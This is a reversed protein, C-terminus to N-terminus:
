NQKPTIEVGKVKLWLIVKRLWKANDSSPELSGIRKSIITALDLGNAGKGTFDAGRGLLFYVMEFNPRGAAVLLPTDGHDNKSNIDAGANLLLDVPKTGERIAYFIPRRGFDEKFVMNVNVKHEILAALFRHDKHKIASDMVSSGDDYIVNPNAGLKLLHLFGEYNRLAWFLPTAGRTGMSNVDVGDKVLKDIKCVDGKAAAEALCHVDKDPFMDGISMYYVLQKAAAENKKQQASDLRRFLDMDVSAFATTASYALLSAHILSTIKM